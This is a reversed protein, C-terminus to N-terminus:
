EASTALRKSSTWVTVAPTRSSIYFADAAVTQGSEARGNGSERAPQEIKTCRSPSAMRARGRGM